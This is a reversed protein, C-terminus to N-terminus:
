YTASNAESFSESSGDTTQTWADSQSVTNNGLADASATATATNGVADAYGSINVEVDVDVDVDLDKDLELNSNFTVGGGGIIEENTVELYNLDNIIM